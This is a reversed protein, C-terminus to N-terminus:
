NSDPYMKEIRQKSRRLEDVSYGDVMVVNKM